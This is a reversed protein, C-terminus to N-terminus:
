NQQDKECANEWHVAKGEVRKAEKVSWRELGMGMEVFLKDGAADVHVNSIFVVTLEEQTNRKEEVVILVEDM